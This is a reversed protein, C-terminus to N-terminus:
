LGGCFLCRLERETRIKDYSAEAKAARKLCRKRRKWIKPSAPQSIKLRISNIYKASIHFLSWRLKKATIKVKTDMSSFKWFPSTRASRPARVTIQWGYRVGNITCSVAYVGQKVEVKDEPYVVNMTPFGLIKKGRKAGDAVTGTVSYNRTLLGNAGEIDGSELMSKILSSSIKQDNFSIDKVPLYWVGNDEDEAFSKLTSVKGKAGAGFRFDSGSMLGKINIKEDINKIFEAAPTNKLQEDYHIKLVFKVNFEELLRLREAFTYLLRGGKGNEFMMVGLDLGNIKAKLKAKKLLEVHGAHLGDFCGLVLLSPFEYEDVNYNVIELM